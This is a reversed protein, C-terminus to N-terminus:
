SREYYQHFYAIFIEKLKINTTPIKFHRLPNPSTPKNQHYFHSRQLSTKITLIFDGGFKNIYTLIKNWVIVIKLHSSEKTILNKITDQATFPIASSNDSPYVHTYVYGDRSPYDQQLEEQPFLTKHQSHLGQILYFIMGSGHKCKITINQHLKRYSEFWWYTIIVNFALSDIIERYGINWYHKMPILLTM